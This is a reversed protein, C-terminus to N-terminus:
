QFPLYRLSLFAMNDDTHPTGGYGSFGAVDTHSFQAGFSLTGYDGQFYRWWFGITGQSVRRINANCAMASPANEIQCGSVNYGINGYGYPTGNVNYSSRSLINEMGGYAYIDVSKYPHGILGILVQAEPLLAPSGHINTTADPLNTTGYRGIGYGALGSAQFDFYKKVVPIVMGGGGGGAFKTHSKGTGIYSVRDHIFRGIGFAEFHGFKPDASGKLIIDPAVDDSYTTSVNEVQGGSNNYTIKEESPTYITGGWVSQPNELSLGIHYEHNHFGKVIRIGTNRTWTFGPVYQADIVLPIQESRTDMGKKFLTALSWSQGGMIYFDDIKNEFEGYMVRSRLVYSNSQRSNSASGAGQFDVETYGSVHWKDTIDAGVLASFRSQRETEHFENMHANPSNMWPISSFNSSIDATENRSRFIGAMEVYGGLIISIRGVNFQGKHFLGNTTNGSPSVPMGTIQGYTTPESRPDTGGITIWPRNIAYNDANPNGIIIPRNYAPDTSIKERNLATEKVLRVENDQKVQQIKMYQIQKQLYNIQKEMISIQRSATQSHASHLCFSYVCSFAGSMLLMNKAYMSM